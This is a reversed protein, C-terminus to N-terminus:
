SSELNFGDSKCMACGICFEAAGNDPHWIGLPCEEPGSCPPGKYTDLTEWEGSCICRERPVNHCPTCFHAKGGCFFTAISCCFRCKWEMYTDGHKRCSKGQNGSCPGCILEQPNFDQVDECEKEGGYYPTKCKYCLYFALKKLVYDEERGEYEGGEKFISDSLRGEVKLRELGKELLYEELAKLPKIIDRLSDHTMREKCLPCEMFAFSIFPTPWHAELKKKVCDQHFWHGCDLKIAPQAGIEEVWCISCWDDSTQPAGNACDPHICDACVRERAIGVCPHGCEHSKLCREKIQEKCEKQDCVYLPPSKLKLLLDKEKQKKRKSLEEEWKRKEEELKQKRLNEEEEFKAREQKKRKEEQEKWNEQEKEYNLLALKHQRRKWFFIGKQKPKVKGFYREQFFFSKEHFTFDKPQEEVMEEEEEEVYPLADKDVAEQCCRCHKEANGYEEFQECTYKSHYPISMCKACFITNCVRCRFRYKHYHALSQGTLPQGEEDTAPKKMEEESCPIFEYYVGCEENPCTIFEENDEIFTKLSKSLDVSMKPEVGDEDPLLDGFAALGKKLDAISIKCDCEELPCVFARQENEKQENEEKEEKEEKEDSEKKNEEEEEEAKQKEGAIRQMQEVAEDFLCNLCFGHGCMELSYFHESTDPFETSCLECSVMQSGKVDQEGNLLQELLAQQSEEIKPETVNSDKINSEDESQEKADRVVENSKHEKEKGKDEKNKNKYVVKEKSKDEKRIPEEKSDSLAKEKGKDEKSIPEEKSKQEKDKNKDKYVVKEKGKDEKNLPEKYEEEVAREKGKEEKDVSKEEKNAKEKKKDGKDVAREKGKDVKSGREKKDKGVVREKSKEEKDVVKEKGKEEVAREKGKDQKEDAIKEKSDKKEKGLSRKSRPSKLVVFDDYSRTLLVSPHIIKSGRSGANGM